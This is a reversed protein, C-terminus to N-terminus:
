YFEIDRDYIDKRERKWYAVSDMLYYDDKKHFDKDIKDDFYVIVKLIQPTMDTYMDFEANEYEIIEGSKLGVTIKM